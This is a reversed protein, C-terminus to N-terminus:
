KRLRSFISPKRERHRASRSILSTEELKPPSSATDIFTAESEGNDTSDNAILMSLELESVDTGQNDQEIPDSELQAELNTENNHEIYPEDTLSESTTDSAEFAEEPLEAAPEFAAEVSEVAEEREHETVVEALAEVQSQEVLTTSDLQDTLQQIEPEPEISDDGLQQELQRVRETLRGVKNDLERLARLLHAPNLMIEHELSDEQEMNFIELEEPTLLADLEAKSLITNYKM